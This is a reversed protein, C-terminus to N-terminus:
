DLEEVEASELKETAPAEVIEPKKKGYRILLDDHEEPSLARISRIRIKEPGFNDDVVIDSFGPCIRSTPSTFGIHWSSKLGYARRLLEIHYKRKASATVVLNSEDLVQYDRITGEFICDSARPADDYDAGPDAVETSACAILGCSIFAILLQKMLIKRM